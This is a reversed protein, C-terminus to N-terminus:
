AVRIFPEPWSCDKSCVLLCLSHALRTMTIALMSSGATIWFISAWSSSLAVEAADLNNGFHGGVGQLSYTLVAM